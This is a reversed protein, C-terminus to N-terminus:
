GPRLAVLLEMEVQPAGVTRHRRVRGERRYGAGVATRLSAVNWPEVYAEIRDLEPHGWAFETLAVLAQRALGRGRCRPAIAYGVTAHGAHGAQRAAGPWLGATGVAEGSGSLAVCFPYGERRALRERQREIYARAEADDAHHPLTGTLPVYPDTALDRLMTVDDVEFARLTISGFAPTPDPLVLPVDLM